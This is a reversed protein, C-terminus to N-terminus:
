LDKSFLIVCSWHSHIGDCFNSRLWVGIPHKLSSKLLHIHSEMPGWASDFQNWLCGQACPNSLHSSMPPHLKILLFVIVTHMYIYIYICNHVIEIWPWWDIKISCTYIYIYTHTHTHFNHHAYLHISIYLFLNCQSVATNGGSQSPQWSTLDAVMGKLNGSIGLAWTKQKRWFGFMKWECLAVMSVGHVYLCM